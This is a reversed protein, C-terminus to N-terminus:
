AKPIRRKVITSEGTTKLFRSIKNYLKRGFGRIKRIDSISSFRHKKRYNIISVAKKKGIGPIYKLKSIPATNINVKGSVEYRYKKKAANAGSIGALSFVATLLAIIATKSKLIGFNKM